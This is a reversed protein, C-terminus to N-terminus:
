LNNKRLDNIFRRVANQLNLKSEKLEDQTINSGELLPYVLVSKYKNEINLDTSGVFLVIKKNRDDTNNIIESILKGSFSSQDLKGEGSIIYKVNKIVEEFNILDLFYKSGKIIDVNLFAKFGYPIGGAAGASDFTPNLQTEKTLLTHLYRLNNDLTIVQAPNAGKQPAYVYAAGNLGFLPNNVDCVLSLKVDVLRKDLNSRDISIIQDITGGVPIFPKNEKDYFKIGLCALAGLGADNTSSGGLGVVIRELNHNLADIIQEGLGYTTTKLPNKPNAQILGACTALELYAVKNEEDLLYFSDVKNFNPGTTKIRIIKGRIVNLISDIFGEGGDAAHFSLINEHKFNNEILESKIIEIVEKSTLTGKFSDPILLFKGM